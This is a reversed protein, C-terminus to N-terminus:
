KGLFFLNIYKQFAFLVISILLPPSNFHAILLNITRYICALVVIFSIFTGQAPNNYRGTCAGSPVYFFRFVAHAATKGRLRLIGMWHRASSQRCLWPPLHLDLMTCTESDSTGPLAPLVQAV